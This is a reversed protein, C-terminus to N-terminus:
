EPKPFRKLTLTYEEVSSDARMARLMLIDGAVSVYLRVGRALDNPLADTEVDLVLYREAENVKFEGCYANVGANATPQVAEDFNRM